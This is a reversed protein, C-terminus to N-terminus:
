PLLQERQMRICCFFLRGASNICDETRGHVAFPRPFPSVCKLRISRTRAERMCRGCRGNKFFFPLTPTIMLISSEERAREWRMHKNKPLSKPSQTVKEERIEEPYYDTIAGWCVTETPTTSTPPPTPPSLVIEFDCRGELGPTCTYNVM